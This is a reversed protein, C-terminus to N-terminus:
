SSAIRRALPSGDPYWANRSRNKPGGAPGRRCGDGSVSSLEEGLEGLAERRMLEVGPM